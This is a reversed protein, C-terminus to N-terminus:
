SNFVMEDYCDGCIALTDDCWAVGDQTADQKCVSCPIFVFESRARIEALRAAIRERKFLAMALKWARYSFRRSRM